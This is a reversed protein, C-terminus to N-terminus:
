VYLIYIIQLTILLLKFASRSTGIPNEYIVFSSPVFRGLAPDLNWIHVGIPRCKVIGFCSALGTVNRGIPLWLRPTYSVYVTPLRPASATDSFNITVRVQRHHVYIPNIPKVHM